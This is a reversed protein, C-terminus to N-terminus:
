TGLPEYKDKLRRWDRSLGLSEDSFRIETAPAVNRALTQCNGGSSVIVTVGEPVDITLEDKVTFPGALRKIGKGLNVKLVGESSTNKITVAHAVSWILCPVLLWLWLLKKM